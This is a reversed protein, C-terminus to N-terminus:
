DLLELQQKLENIIQQYKSANDLDNNEIALLMSKYTDEIQEEIWQQM